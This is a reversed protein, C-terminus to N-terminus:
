QKRGVQRGLGSTAIDLLEPVGQRLTPAFTDHRREGRLWRTYIAECFIAAKWLALTEYWPLAALDLGTHHAYTEAIETRDMYGPGATAPSLHLVTSASTSDSYTALLYGLDALPDGLTAMEWDLVALPGVPTEPSFMMNGLRYDGHVLTSRQAPPLNHSLWTAIAEVRSDDRITAVKWLQAFRDIQRQLYGNPRGVGNLPARTVDISHLHVLTEVLSVSIGRRRELTDLPEPTTDTLVLGDLWEMIYFPVGLVSEDGCIALIAPVPFGQARLMQQLGAERLMDHTSPPHPPRPGRRLVIDLYKGPRHLRYTINSQGDGVRQWGLSGGRISGLCRSELFDTLRDLVLLPAPHAPDADSLSAVVEIGDPEYCLDPMPIHTTSM